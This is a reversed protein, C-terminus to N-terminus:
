CFLKSKVFVELELNKHRIVFTTEENKISDRIGSSEVCEVKKEEHEDVQPFNNILVFFPSGMIPGYYDSVYIKFYGTTHPVITALNENDYRVDVREGLPDYADIEITEEKLVIKFPQEIINTNQNFNDM